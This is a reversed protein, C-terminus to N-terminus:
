ENKDVEKRINELIQNDIEETIASRMEKTNLARTWVEFSLTTNEDIVLDPQFFGNM